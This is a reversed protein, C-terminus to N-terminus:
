LDGLTEGRSRTGFGRWTRIDISNPIKKVAGDAFLVNVINPHRSSAGWVGYNSADNDTVQCTPGNPPIITNFGSWTPRGDQWRQGRWRSNTMNVFTVGTDNYRKGNYQDATVWCRQYWQQVTMNRNGTAIMAANAIDYWVEPNGIRAESMALTNATGDRIDRIKITRIRHNTAPWVRRATQLMYAVGNPPHPDANRPELHNRFVTTGLCMKYSNNGFPALKLEEDSPCLLTPIRVTWCGHLTRWSVPAFNHSKARDYVQQQEYYPAM